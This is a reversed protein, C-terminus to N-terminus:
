VSDPSIRYANMLESAIAILGVLKTKLAAIFEALTIGRETLEKILKESRDLDTKVEYHANLYDNNIV